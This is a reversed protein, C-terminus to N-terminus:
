GATPGDGSSPPRRGGGTPDLSPVARSAPGRGTEAAGVGPGTTAAPHARLERLADFRTREWLAVGSLYAARGILHASVPTTLFIFVMILVARVATGLDGFVLAAAALICGAGLSSAKSAVQLRMYLDPMRLVGVASLLMFLGGVFLFGLAVVEIPTM